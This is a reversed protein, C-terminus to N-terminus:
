CSTMPPASRRRRMLIRGLRGTWGLSACCRGVTRALRALADDRAQRRRDILISRILIPDNTLM